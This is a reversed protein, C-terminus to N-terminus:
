FIFIFILYFITGYPLTVPFSLCLMLANLTYNIKSDFGHACCSRPITHTQKTSLSLKTLAGAIRSIRMCPPNIHVWVASNWPIKWWLVAFVIFCLCSFDQFCYKNQKTSRDNLLFKQGMFVTTSILWQVTLNQFFTPWLQPTGSQTKEGSIVSWLRFHLFGHLCCFYLQWMWTSYTFHLM